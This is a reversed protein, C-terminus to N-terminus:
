SYSYSYSYAGYESRRPKIGTIVIGTPRAPFRSMASTVAKAEDRTTKGERACVVVGEVLPLIELTDAVPLLPCSDIVVVDYAEVVEQIFEKFQASGIL